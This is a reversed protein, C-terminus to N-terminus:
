RFMRKQVKWYMGVTGNQARDLANWHVFFIQDRKNMFAMNIGMDPISLLNTSISGGIFVKNRPKYVEVIKDPLMRLYDVKQWSIKNETISDQVTIKMASDTYFESYYKVSYHNKYLESCFDEPLIFQITNKVAGTDPIESLKVSKKFFRQVIKKPVLGGKNDPLITKPRDQIIPTINNEPCPPCKPTCVFHFLLIATILLFYIVRESWQM